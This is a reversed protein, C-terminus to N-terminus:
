DVCYQSTILVDLRDMDIFRQVSSMMRDLNRQFQEPDGPADFFKQPDSIAAQPFCEEVFADYAPAEASLARVVLNQLYEFTSQTQIAIETHSNQWTDLWQAPTLRPPRKLLAIQAFGTTRAGAAPPHRRNLLPQSECVLYASFKTGDGALAIDLPARRQAIASDLWVQLLADPPNPSSARRLAGASQVADDQLNLRLSRVGALRRLEALRRRQAAAWALPEEGPRRWLLYIVKEM